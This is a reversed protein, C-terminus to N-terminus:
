RERGGLGGLGEGRSERARDGALGAPVCRIPDLESPRRRRTRTHLSVLLVGTALVTAASATAPLAIKPM